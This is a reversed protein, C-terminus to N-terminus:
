TPTPEPLQGLIENAESLLLPRIPENDSMVVIQGTRGRSKYWTLVVFRGGDWPIVGLHEDDSHVRWSDDAEVIDRLANATMCNWNDSDFTGSLFACGRPSGFNAPQRGAKECRPCM